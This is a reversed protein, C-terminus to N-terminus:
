RPAFMSIRPRMCVSGVRWQLPYHVWFFHWRNGRIKSFSRGGVLIAFLAILKLERRMFLMAGSHIQAGIEAVKGEGGSLRRLRFFLIGAVALGILGLIPVLVHLSQM